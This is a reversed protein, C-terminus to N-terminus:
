RCITSTCHPDCIRFPGATDNKRRAGRCFEMECRDFSRLLARPVNAATNARWQEEGFMGHLQQHAFQMTVGSLVM